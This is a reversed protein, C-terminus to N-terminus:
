EGKLLMMQGYHYSNHNTRSLLIALKNRHPEKAFDEPSVRTHRELWEEPAMSSFINSLHSNLENWKHKLEGITPISESTKDANTIFIEELEPFLKEGKDLFSIMRDNEAILHGMLYIPRNRGPAIEKLYFADEYKNFYNTIAKIQIDWSIIANTIMKDAFTGGATTQNNM